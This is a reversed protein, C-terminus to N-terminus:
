IKCLKRKLIQSLKDEILDNSIGALFISIVLILIIASISKASIIKLNVVRGVILIVYYHILYFSFSIKGLFNIVKPMPRKKCALVLCILAIGSLVANRYINLDSAFMLGLAVLTLGILIGNVGTNQHKNWLYRIIYFAGIGVAFSIWWPKCLIFLFPMDTGFKGQTTLLIVCCLGAILGRYKHSVKICVGFIITFYVDYYLTWAPGVMPRVVDASKLAHRLYPMFFLSKIFEPTGGGTSISPIVQMAAFTFM